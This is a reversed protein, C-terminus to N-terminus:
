PTRLIKLFKKSKVMQIKFSRTKMLRRQGFLFFWNKSAGITKKHCMEYIKFILGM